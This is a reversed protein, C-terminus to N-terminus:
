EEVVVTLVAHGENGDIDLAYYHISYVGPKQPDYEESILLSDEDAPEYNSYIGEIYSEFDPETGKEVYILYEKLRIVPARLNIKEVFIPLELHIIDGKSNTAQLALSFSGSTNAKYDTTTVIVKEGIDGDIADRAGVISRVDLSQGVSFVVSQNLVFRPSEYDIYHIQRTNKAVHKDGDAVAYTVTCKGEESFQSISEVIVKSTIDGDKQDYATVGELLAAEDDYISVELVDTAIRIEPVTTDVNLATDIYFWGFVFLVIIFIAVTIIRLVKM